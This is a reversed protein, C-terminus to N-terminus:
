RPGIPPAPPAPPVAVMADRPLKVEGKWVAGPNYGFGPDVGRPTPEVRGSRGVPQLTVDLPPALDPGAKGMRGVERATLPEVSCGCHFGNPPYNTTWWPDTALLTLGDWAKHQLRPHLAGSHRYMWYPYVALVDPDTAQAYRGAAYAMNVNTEFIIQSRWGATGTHEWGHRKVIDDFSKRFDALTTGAAIAKEIAGRFDSVIADTAAGAVTFARTHAAEWVDTWRETPINAKQALFAIAEEFPLDVAQVTAAAIAM